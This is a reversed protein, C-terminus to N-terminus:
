PPTIALSIQEFLNSPISFLRIKGEAAAKILAEKDPKLNFLSDYGIVEVQDQAILSVPDMGADIPIFKIVITETTPAGLAFYPNAQLVIERGYEWRAVRYPGVGLPTSRVEELGMWQRVDSEAMREGSSLVQHAPLRSIPPLQYEMERYGPKWTVVYESDSVFNVEAIMQCFEPPSLYEQAGTAPDCIARYYLEYDEQAVPAGDSWTLDENFQFKVALSNMTLPEGSFTVLNGQADRVQVGPELSVPKGSVDVVAGGEEVQVPTINVQGNELSPIQKLLVPQFEYGLQTYNLGYVLAQVLQSVYDTDSPFLTAPEAMSGIVLTDKGDIKWQYANWTYLGSPSPVFGELNADTAYLEVQSFLPILPLDHSSERQILRYAELQAQREFQSQLQQLAMETQPNCWGSYNNGQWDNEANPIQDCGFWTRLDPEAQSVWAFVALDFDRRSLKGPHAADVGFFEEAPLYEPVIEVGCTKMQEVFLPVYNKRIEAQTTSLKLSLSAGAQNLRYPSDGTLRWGAEELLQRGAEPDYPYRIVDSGIPDYAWHSPPLFADLIFPEPDEIWPYIASFLSKKDTCHAIGQRLRLDGLIPLPNALAPTPSPSAPITQTPVSRTPAATPSPPLSPTSEPPKPTQCAALIFGIIIISLFNRKLTM